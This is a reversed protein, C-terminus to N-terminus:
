FGERQWAVQPSEEPESGCGCIAAIREYEPGSEHYSDSVIESAKFVTTAAYGWGTECCDLTFHLDPYMGSLTRLAPNPPSWASWFRIVTQDENSDVVVNEVDWTTGWHEVRWSRRADEETVADSSVSLLRALDVYKQSFTGPEPDIKPLIENGSWLAVIQGHNPGSVTLRNSCYNPM